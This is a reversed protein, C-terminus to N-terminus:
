SSGEAISVLESFQLISSRRGSGQRLTQLLGNDRCLRVIRNATPKPIGSSVMFDSSRFIPRSFFWDLATVAYQSHTLETIWAKRVQYLELISKARNYNSSAQEIIATLFFVCWSTWDDDKSVNLLREYYEDRNAELYASIYFNPNTLLKKELLFLPVLLRGIRGNGDLFPHIAEFEAHMIALQILMDPADSHLYREWNSMAQPIQEANVPVFRATEMSCGPSGIWNPIRRYEGPSKNEGRVGQMLVRHTNKVLRMSLPLTRLQQAAYDLASRYNFVELIDARKEADSSLDGAEFELVEGFTAQTGEIRSSLVAEQTTLPALLVSSNPVGVLVGEYRALSANAPGVLPLLRELDLHRPPFRGLAYHVAATM